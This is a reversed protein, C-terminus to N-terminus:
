CLVWDKADYHRHYANSVRAGAGCAASRGVDGLQWHHSLSESAADNLWGPRNLALHEPETHLSQL